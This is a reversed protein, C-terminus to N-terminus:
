RVRARVTRPPTRDYPRRQVQYEAFRREVIEPDQKLVLAVPDGVLHCHERRAVPVGEHRIVRLDPGVRGQDTARDDHVVLDDTADAAEAVLLALHAVPVVERHPPSADCGRRKGGEEVVDRLAGQEGVNRDRVDPRRLDELSAAEDLDFALRGVHLLDDVPQGLREGRVQRRGRAPTPRLHRLAM